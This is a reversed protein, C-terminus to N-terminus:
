IWDLAEIGHVVRTEGNKFLIVVPLGTPAPPNSSSPTFVSYVDFGNIRHEFVIKTGYGKAAEIVQKPIRM